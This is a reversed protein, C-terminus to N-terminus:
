CEDINTYSVAEDIKDMLLSAFILLKVAAEKTITKNEHGKPTERLINYGDM